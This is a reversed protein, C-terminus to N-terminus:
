LPQFLYGDHKTALAKSRVKGVGDLYTVPWKGRYPFLTPNRRTTVM